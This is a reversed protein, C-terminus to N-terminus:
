SPYCGRSADGKGVINIGQPSLMISLFVTLALYLIKWLAKERPGMELHQLLLSLSASWVVPEKM